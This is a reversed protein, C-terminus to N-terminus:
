VKREPVQELIAKETEAIATIFEQERGLIDYYYSNPYKWHRVRLPELKRVLRQFLTEALTGNQLIAGVDPVIWKPVIEVEGEATILALTPKWLLDSRDDERIKIALDRASLSIRLGHIHALEITKEISARREQTLRSIFFSVRPPMQWKSTTEFGSEKTHQPPPSIAMKIKPTKQVEERLERVFQPATDIIQVAEGYYKQFYWSTATSLAMLCTLADSPTAPHADPGHDHSGYNGLRQVTELHVVITAPLEKRLHHMLDEFELKGLPKKGQEGCTLQYLRKCLAEGAIRAKNLSAEPDSSMYEMAKLALPRLYDLDARMESIEREINEVRSEIDM